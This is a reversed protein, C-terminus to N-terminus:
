DFAMPLLQKGGPVYGGTPASEEMNMGKERVEEMEANKKAVNESGELSNGCRTWLNSRNARRQLDEANERHMTSPLVQLYSPIMRHDAVAKKPGRKLHPGERPIHAKDDNFSPDLLKLVFSGRTKQRKSNGSPISPNFSASTVLLTGFRQVAAGHVNAHFADRNKLADTISIIDQVLSICQFDRLSPDSLSPFLTSGHNDKIIFSLLRFSESIKNFCDANLTPADKGIYASVLMSLLSQIEQTWGGQLLSEDDLPERKLNGDSPLTEIEKFFPPLLSDRHFAPDLCHVSFETGVLVLKHSAIEPANSGTSFWSLGIETAMKSDFLDKLVATVHSVLIAPHVCTSKSAPPIICSPENVLSFRLLSNSTPLCAGHDLGTFAHCWFEFNNSPSEISVRHLGLSARALSLLDRPLSQVSSPLSVSTVSVLLPLPFSSSLKANFTNVAASESLQLLHAHTSAAGSDLAVFVLHINISRFLSRDVGRSDLATQLHRCLVRADNTNPATTSLPVLALVALPPRSLSVGGTNMGANPGFSVKKSDPVLMSVTDLICRTIMDTETENENQGQSLKVAVGVSAAVATLNTVSLTMAALMASASAATSPKCCQVVLMM